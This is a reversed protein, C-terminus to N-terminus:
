GTDTGSWNRGAGPRHSPGARRPEALQQNVKGTGGVLAKGLPHYIGVCVLRGLSQTPM